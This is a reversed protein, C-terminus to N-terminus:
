AAMPMFPQLKQKPPRGRRKSAVWPSLPVKLLLLEGLTWPHDTLGAAMAPTREEWKRSANQPAALRLSDHYWCFNYACGVLYMGATLVAETHAIARGRRALPALASRFTANIREIYATNIVTGGRTAKLALALATATGRVVRRAVKVVRRRAYRKIVQGILLGPEVVLRPRGRRGTRVPDRFVRLFATVYSALGDVCVLIALSRACARVGQVLETILARDRDPSIVGGLWLRAPVAIAMAMWVCKGVLKVWLEDARVQGLEVQGQQVLHRHVDQCHEGARAQWRAVTREDFGFAAVIAQLPCGHCLLTLVLTVVDTATRLRYFPTGTTTTFTRGCTSCRYRQEKRSHIGINGLGGQGRDPCDLNHCFQEHPDM